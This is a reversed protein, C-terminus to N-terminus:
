AGRGGGSTQEKDASMEISWHVCLVTSKRKRMIRRFLAWLNNRKVSVCRGRTDILSSICFCPFLKSILACLFETGELFAAKFALDADKPM